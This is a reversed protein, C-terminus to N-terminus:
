KRCVYLLFYEDGLLYNCEVNESDVAIAYM